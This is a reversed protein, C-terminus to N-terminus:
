FFVWFFGWVVFSFAQKFVFPVPDKGRAWKGVQIKGFYFSQTITDGNDGATLGGWFIHGGAPNGVFLFRPGGRPGGDYRGFALFDRGEWGGGGGKRLFSFTFEPRACGQGM